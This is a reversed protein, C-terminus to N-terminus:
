DLERIPVVANASSKYGPSNTSGNLISGSSYICWCGTFSLNNQYIVESSSWTYNPASIIKDINANATPDMDNLTVRVAFIMALQVINPLDWQGNESDVTLDRCFKVAPVGSTGKSDTTGEYTMWVDCLEKATKETYASKVYGCVTTNTDTAAITGSVGSVDANASNKGHTGFVLDLGRYAADIVEMKKKILFEGSSTPWHYEITTAIDNDSRYLKFEQIEIANLQAQIEAAQTELVTVRDAVSKVASATAALSTSTSSTSTSLQVLGKTSTSGNAVSIVGNSVSINTGVKLVGKASTSGDSVSVIGNSVNINDGVQVLGKNSTTADQALNTVIGEMTTVKNLAATVNSQLSSVTNSYDSTDGAASQAATKAQTAVTDVSALESYLRRDIEGNRQALSRINAIITSATSM